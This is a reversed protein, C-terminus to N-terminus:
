STNLLGMSLARAVAAMRNSTGLKNVVNEVHFKVTRAKIALIVAIDENTKGEAVWRLVEIERPTLAVRVNPVDAHGIVRTFAEHALLVLWNLQLSKSALEPEQLPRRSRVLSVMSAVGAGDFRSQAWGYRLGAAQAERWLEPSEAFLADNWVFALQSRLGHRVTPDTELYGAQRYRQQWETPYDSVLVFSPRVVSNPFRLGYACWEFGLWRGAKQLVVFASQVSHAQDLEDRLDRAWRQM